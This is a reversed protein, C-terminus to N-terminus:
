KRVTWEVKDRLSPRAPLVDINQATANAPTVETVRYRAADFGIPNGDPGRIAAASLYVTLVSGIGLGDRQGLDVTIREGGAGEVAIVQGESRRVYAPAPPAPGRAVQWPGGARGAQYRGSMSNGDASLRGLFSVPEPWGAINLRFSVIRTEPDFRGEDLPIARVSGQISGQWHGTVVHPGPRM